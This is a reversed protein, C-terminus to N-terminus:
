DCIGGTIFKSDLLPYNIYKKFGCRPNAAFYITRESKPMTLFELLNVERHPTQVSRLNFRMSRDATAKCFGGRWAMKTIIWRKLDGKVKRHKANQKVIVNGGETVVMLGVGHAKLRDKIYAGHKSEFLEISIAFYMKNAFPLYSEWKTDSTFDAWCSKIEVIVTQGRVTLGLIDARLKSYKNDSKLGVEDYVSYLKDVLYYTAARKLRLTDNKRTM